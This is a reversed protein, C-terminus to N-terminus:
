EGAEMVDITPALEIMELADKLTILEVGRFNDSMCDHLADADILKMGGGGLAKEAAERTLFVTKGLCEVPFGGLHSYIGEKLNWRFFSVGYKNIIIETIEYESIIGRDKRPEYVVDGVKCPLVLVKEDPTIWNLIDEALCNNDTAKAYATLASIAAPDKNPRLVFCNEVPTNDKAKYVRYKVKLGPYDSKQPEPLVVLRGDAKAQKYSNLEDQLEKARNFWEISSQEKSEDSVILQKVEEPSLGSDEYSALRNFSDMICRLTNPYPSEVDQEDQKVNVLYAMGNKPSRATLREFM